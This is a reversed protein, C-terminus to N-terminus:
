FGIRSFRYLRKMMSFIVPYVEMSLKRVQTKGLSKIM